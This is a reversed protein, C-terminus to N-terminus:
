EENIAAIQDSGSKQVPAQGEFSFKGRLDKQFSFEHASGANVIEDVVGRRSEVGGVKQQLVGALVTIVGEFDVSAAGKALPVRDHSGVRAGTGSRVLDEIIREVIQGQARLGRTRKGPISGVAEDGPPQQGHDFAEIGPIGDFGAASKGKGCNVILLLDHPRRAGITEWGIERQVKMKLFAEVGEAEIPGQSAPEIIESIVLIWVRDVVVDVGGAEEGEAVEVAAGEGGSDTKQSSLLLHTGAYGSANRVRYVNEARVISARLSQFCHGIACNVTAPM